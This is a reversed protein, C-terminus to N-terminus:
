LPNALGFDRHKHQPSDKRCTNVVTQQANRRNGIRETENQISNGDLGTHNGFKSNAASSRQWYRKQQHQAPDHQARLRLPTASIIQRVPHAALHPHPLMSLLPHRIGITILRRTRRALPRTTPISTLHRRTRSSRAHTRHMLIPRTGPFRNLRLDYPLPDPCRPLSHREHPSSRHQPNETRRALALPTRRQSSRFNKPLTVAHIRPQGIILEASPSGRSIVLAPSM